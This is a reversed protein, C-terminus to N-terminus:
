INDISNNNFSILPNENTLIKAIPSKIKYTGVFTSDMIEQKRVFFIM